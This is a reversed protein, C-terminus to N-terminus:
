PYHRFPCFYRMLTGEMPHMDLKLFPRTNHGM